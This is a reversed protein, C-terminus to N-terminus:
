ELHVELHQICLDVRVHRAADREEKCRAFVAAHTLDGFAMALEPEAGELPVRGSWRSAGVGRDALPSAREYNSKEAWHTKPIVSFYM